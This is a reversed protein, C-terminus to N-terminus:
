LPLGALQAIGSPFGRLDLWGRLRMLPQGLVLIFALATGAAGVPTMGDPSAPGIRDIPIVLRAPVLRGVM